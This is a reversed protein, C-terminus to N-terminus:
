PQEDDMKSQKWHAGGDTSMFALPKIQMVNGHIVGSQGVAMCTQGTADCDVKELHVLTENIINPFNQYIAWHLGGDTTLFNVPKERSNIKTERIAGIVVCKGGTSDCAVDSFGQGYDWEWGKPLNFPGSVNWSRGGDNSAYALPLHKIGSEYASYIGVTICRAGTDDCTVKTPYHKVDLIYTDAKNHIADKPLPFPSSLEWKRGGDNSIYGIPNQESVVVDKGRKNKEHHTYFAAGVIICHLGDKSCFSNYPYAQIDYGQADPMPLNESVEWNLGGSSSVYSLPQITYTPATITQTGVAICNSDIYNCAVSALHNFTSSSPFKAFLEWNNGGDTSKYSILNSNYLKSDVYSGVVVCQMGHEDCKVGALAVKGDLDIPLPMKKRIWSQGNDNSTYSIPFHNYGEYKIGIAACQMHTASCSLDLLKVGEEYDIAHATIPLVSFFSSFAFVCCIIKSNTKMPMTM